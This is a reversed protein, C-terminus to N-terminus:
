ITIVLQEALVSLVNRSVLFSALPITPALIAGKAVVCFSKDEQRIGCIYGCRCASFM